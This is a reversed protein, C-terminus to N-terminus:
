VNREAIVVVRERYTNLLFDYDTCTTLTLRPNDEPYFPTLDDPDVKKIEVVNYLYEQGDQTIILPDGVLLEDLSSFIGQGGDFVEAHGALVINGPENVWATGQLHGAYTGLDNVDWSTGNLYSQVIHTHIGATPAYFIAGNTIEYPLSPAAAVTQPTASASAVPTQTFNVDSLSANSPSSGAGWNDHILYGIGAIMGFLIVLTLSFASGSRRSRYM